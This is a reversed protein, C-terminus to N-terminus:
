YTVVVNPNVLQIEEIFGDKDKPSIAISKDNAYIIEIRDHSLSYSNRDENSFYRIQTITSINIIKMISYAYRIYLNDKIFIYKTSFITFINFIIHVVIISIATILTPNDKVPKFLGLFSTFLILPTFLSSSIKSKFTKM